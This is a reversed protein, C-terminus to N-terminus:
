FFAKSKLFTTINFAEMEILFATPYDANIKGSERDQGGDDFHSIWPHASNGV